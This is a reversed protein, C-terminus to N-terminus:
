KVEGAVLELVGELTARARQIKEFARRRQEAWRSESELMATETADIKVLAEELEQSKPPHAQYEATTVVPPPPQSVAHQKFADPWGQLPDTMRLVQRAGPITQREEFLLEEIRALEEEEKAANAENSYRESSM